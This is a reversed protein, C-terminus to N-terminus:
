DHPSGNQCKTYFWLGKSMNDLAPLYQVNEMYWVLMERYMIMYKKITGYNVMNRGCLRPITDGVGTKGNVNRLLSEFKVWKNNIDYNKLRKSLQKRTLLGLVGIVSNDVEYLFLNVMVDIQQPILGLASLTTDTKEEKGKGEEKISVYYVDEEQFRAKTTLATFYTTVEFSLARVFEDTAYSQHSLASKLDIEVYRPHERQDGDDNSHPDAGRKPASCTSPTM